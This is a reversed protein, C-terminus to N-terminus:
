KDAIMRLAQKGASTITVLAKAEADTCDALVANMEKLSIHKTHCVNEMMLDDLTVQLAAAINVLTPLSVKTNGTEIHSAHAPTLDALEALKEQTMGVALRFKRIRQGLAIYDIEM